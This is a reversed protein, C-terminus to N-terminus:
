SFEVLIAYILMLLFLILSLLYFIKLGFNLSKIKKIAKNDVENDISIPLWMTGLFIEIFSQKANKEYSLLYKLRLFAYRLGAIVALLFIIYLISRYTEM